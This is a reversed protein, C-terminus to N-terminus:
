QLAQNLIKKALWAEARFGVWCILYGGVLLIVPVLSTLLVPHSIAAYLGKAVVVKSIVIPTLTMSQFALTGLWFSMFIGVFKHLRMRIQLDTGSGNSQFKGRIVPLFSNRYLSTRTIEFSNGNLRGEFPKRDRRKFPNLCPPGTVADLKQRVEDPSLSTEIVLDEQPLFNM